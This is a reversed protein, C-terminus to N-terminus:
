HDTSGTDRWLGYLASTHMAGLAEDSLSPYRRQMEARRENLRGELGCFERFLTRAREALPTGRFDGFQAVLAQHRERSLVVRGGITLLIAATEEDVDEV